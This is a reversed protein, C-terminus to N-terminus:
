ALTHQEAILFVSKLAPVASAMADIAVAAGYQARASGEKTFAIDGDVVQLSDGATVDTDGDVLAECEGETQFLGIALSAVAELAVATRVLFATTAAAIAQMEGGATEEYGIVVVEGIVVASGTGNYLSIGVGNPTVNFMEGIEARNRIDTRM